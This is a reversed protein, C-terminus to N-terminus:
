PKYFLATQYFLTRLEENNAIKRISTRAKDNNIIKYLYEGIIRYKSIILEFEELEPDQIRTDSLLSSQLMDTDQFDYKQNDGRHIFHLFGANYYSFNELIIETKKVFQILCVAAISDKRSDLGWCYPGALNELIRSGKELAEGANEKSAPFADYESLPRMDYIDPYLLITRDQVRNYIQRFKDAYEKNESDLFEQFSEIWCDLEWSRLEVLYSYLSDKNKKGFIMNCALQVNNLDRIDAFYGRLFSYAGDSILM